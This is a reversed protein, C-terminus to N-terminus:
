DSSTKLSFGLTGHRSIGVSLEGQQGRPRHVFQIGEKGIKEVRRVLPESDRFPLPGATRALAANAAADSLAVPHAGLIRELDARHVELGPTSARTVPNRITSLAATLASTCRANSGPTVCLDSSSRREPASASHAGALPMRPTPGNNSRPSELIAQQIHPDAFAPGAVLAFLLLARKDM